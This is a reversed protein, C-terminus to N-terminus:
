SNVDFQTNLKLQLKSKMTCLTESDQMFHVANSGTHWVMIVYGSIESVPEYQMCTHIYTHASYSGDDIVTQYNQQVLQILYRIVHCWTFGLLFTSGRTSDFEPRRLDLNVYKAWDLRVPKSIQEARIAKTASLDACV